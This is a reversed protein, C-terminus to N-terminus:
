AYAPVHRRRMRVAEACALAVQVARVQETQLFAVLHLLVLVAQLVGLGDQSQEGLMATLGEGQM